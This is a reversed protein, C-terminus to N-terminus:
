MFLHPVYQPYTPPRWPTTHPQPHPPSSTPPLPQPSRSTSSVGALRVSCAGVHQSLLGFPISHACTPSRLSERGRVAMNQARERGEAGFLKGLSDVEFFVMSKCFGCSSLEFIQTFRGDDRRICWDDIFYCVGFVRLGERLGGAINPSCSDSLGRTGLGHSRNRGDGGSPM